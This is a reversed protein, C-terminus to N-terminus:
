RVIIREGAIEIVDNKVILCSKGTKLRRFVSDHEKRIGVGYSDSVAELYWYNKELNLVAYEYKLAGGTGSYELETEDRDSKGIIIAKKSALPYESKVEGSDKMVTLKSIYPFPADAEPRAKSSAAYILAAVGAIFFVANQGLAVLAIGFVGNTLSILDGRLLYILVGIGAACAAACLILCIDIVIFFIKNRM